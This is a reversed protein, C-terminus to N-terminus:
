QLVQNACGELTGLGFQREYVRTEGLYAPEKSVSSHNGETSAVPWHARAAHCDVYVAPLLEM